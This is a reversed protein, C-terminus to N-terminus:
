VEVEDGESIKIEKITGAASSPVEVSAKDSEVAIVSQDKEIKDGEAVLVESVTASEVGDGIQPVKIEKAM